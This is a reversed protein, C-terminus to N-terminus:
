KFLKEKREDIYAALYKTREELIKNFPSFHCNQNKLKEILFKKSQIFKSNKPDTLLVTDSNKLISNNRKEFSYKGRKREDENIKSQNFYVPTIKPSTSQFNFIESNWLYNNVFKTKYLQSAPEISFLKDKSLSLFNSKFNLFKKFVLLFAKNSFPLFSNSSNCSKKSSILDEIVSLNNQKLTTIGLPMFNTAYILSGSCTKMFNYHGCGMEEVKEIKGFNVSIDKDVFLESLEIPFESTYESSFSIMEDSDLYTVFTVDSNVLNKQLKNFFNSEYFKLDLKNVQYEDKFENKYKEEKDYNLVMINLVPFVCEKTIPDKFIEGLNKKNITRLFDNRIRLFRENIQLKKLMFKKVIDRFYEQKLTKDQIFRFVYELNKFLKHVEKDFKKPVLYVMLNQLDEDYFKKILTFNTIFLKTDTDDRFEDSSEGTQSENNEISEGYCIQVYNAISKNYSTLNEDTAILIFTNSLIETFVKKKKEYFNLFNDKNEVLFKTKNTSFNSIPYYLPPSEIKEYVNSNGNEKQCVIMECVDKEPAISLFLKVEKLYKKKDIDYDIECDM